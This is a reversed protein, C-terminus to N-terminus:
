EGGPQGSEVGVEEAVDVLRFIRIFIVVPPVAKWCCEVSELEVNWDTALGKFDM